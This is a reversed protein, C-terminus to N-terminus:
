IYRNFLNEAGHKGQINFIALGTFDKCKKEDETFIKLLRFYVIIFSLMEPHFSNLPNDILIFFYDM